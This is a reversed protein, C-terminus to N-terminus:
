SHAEAGAVNEKQVGNTYSIEVSSSLQVINTDWDKGTRFCEYKKKNFLLISKSRVESPGSEKVLRVSHANKKQSYAKAVQM